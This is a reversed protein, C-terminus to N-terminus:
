TGSPCGEGFILRRQVFPNKMYWMPVCEKENRVCCIYEQEFKVAIDEDTNSNNFFHRTWYCTPCVTCQKSTTVVILSSWIWCKSRMQLLGMSHIWCFNIESHLVFGQFSYCLFPLHLPHSPASSLHKNGHLFVLDKCVCLGTGARIKMTYPLCTVFGPLPVELQVDHRIM